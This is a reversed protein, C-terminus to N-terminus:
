ALWSGVGDVITNVADWMREVLIFGIGATAIMWFIWLGWSLADRHPALPNSESNDKLMLVLFVLAGIIFVLWVFGLVLEMFATFM